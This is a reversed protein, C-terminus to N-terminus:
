NILMMLSILKSTSPAATITYSVPTEGYVAIYFWTAETVEYSIVSTTDILRGKKEYEGPKDTPYRSTRSSYM